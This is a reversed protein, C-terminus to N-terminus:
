KAPRLKRESNRCLFTFFKFLKKIECIKQVKTAKNICVPTPVYFYLFAPFRMKLLFKFLRIEPCQGIEYPFLIGDFGNIRRGLQNEICEVTAWEVFYLDHYHSLIGIM